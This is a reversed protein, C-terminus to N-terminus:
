FSEGENAAQNRGYKRRIFSKAQHFALEIPSLDYSYPPLFLVRVGFRQCLVVIELAQHVKANDLVLVSNPNPFPRMKPLVYHELTDLVKAGTVNEECTTVSITGQLGMACLVSIPPTNGHARNCVYYFAPRGKRTSDAFM